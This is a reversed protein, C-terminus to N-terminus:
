KRKSFRYVATYSVEATESADQPLIAPARGGHTAVRQIYDTNAFVGTATKGNKPMLLLWPIQAADPAATRPPNFAQAFISDHIASGPRSIEWYPGAGHTGVIHNGADYLTAKPAVFVWEYAVPNSGPVLQAKYQQVGEAYYTALRENGGPLNAPLAVEAPIVLKESEDIYKGATNTGADDKKSCATMLAILSFPLLFSKRHIM